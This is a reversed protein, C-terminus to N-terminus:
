IEDDSSPDSENAVSDHAVNFTRNHVQEWLKAAEKYIKQSAYAVPKVTFNYYSESAANKEEVTDFAYVRSFRDGAAL